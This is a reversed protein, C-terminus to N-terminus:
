THNLSAEVTSNGEDGAEPEELNAAAEKAQQDVFAVVFDCIRIRDNHKLQTRENIQQNNVFTGNRSNNDEIFFKGHLRVIQAHQRSVSTIPIVFGCGPDRGFIFREGELPLHNGENPGKLIQLTPMRPVESFPDTSRHHHSDASRLKM